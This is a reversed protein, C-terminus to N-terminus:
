WSPIKRLEGADDFYYIEGDMVKINPWGKAYGHYNAKRARLWMGANLVKQELPSLSNQNDYLSQMEKESYTHNESERLIRSVSEKIIRHLIKETLRITNM